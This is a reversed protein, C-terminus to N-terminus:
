FAPYRLKRTSRRDPPNGKANTSRAISPHQSSMVDVSALLFVPAMVAGTEIDKAPAVRAVIFRPRDTNRIVLMMLIM